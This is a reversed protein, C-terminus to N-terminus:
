STEKLLYQIVDATSVIGVLAKNELIPVAHYRGQSLIDAVEKVTAETTLYFPKPTMIDKVKLTKYVANDDKLGAGAINYMFDVLSVMGILKDNEVVPIHHHFDKKEYINKVDLINQNPGISVVNRTMVNDITHAKM